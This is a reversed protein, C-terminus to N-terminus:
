VYRKILRHTAYVAAVAAGVKALTVLPSPPPPPPPATAPYDAAAQRLAIELGQQQAVALYRVSAELLAQRQADPTPLMGLTGVSGKSKRDALVDALNDVAKLLRQQGRVAAKVLLGQLQREMEAQLAPWLIDKQDQYLRLLDAPQDDDKGTAPDASWWFNGGADNQEILQVVQPAINVNYAQKVVQILKGLCAQAWGAKLPAGISWDANYEMSGCGDSYLNGIWQCGWAVFPLLFGGVQGPAIRGRPATPYEFPFFLDLIKNLEKRGDPDNALKPLIAFLLSQKRQKLLAWDAEMTASFRKSAETEVAGTPHVQLGAVAEGVVKGGQACLPALGAGGVAACAAGAGISFFQGLFKKPDLKGTTILNLLDNQVQSPDIGPIALAQDQQADVVQKLAQKLLDDKANDMKPLVLSPPPPKFVLPADDGLRRTGQQRQAQLLAISM